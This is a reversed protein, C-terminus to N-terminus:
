FRFYIFPNFSNAALLLSSYILSLGSFCLQSAMDPRDLRLRSLRDLPVFAFFVGIALYCVVDPTLYSMVADRQNWDEPRAYYQRWIIALPM